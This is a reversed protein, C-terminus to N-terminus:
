NILLLLFKIKSEDPFWYDKSMMTGIYFLVSNEEDKNLDLATNSKNKINKLYFETVYEKFIKSKKYKGLLKTDYTKTFVFWLYRRISRVLTKFVVDKRHANVGASHIWNNGKYSYVGDLEKIDEEELDNKEKCTEKFDPQWKEDSFAHSFENPSNEDSKTISWQETFGKEPEQVSWPSFASSEKNYKLSSSISEKRSSFLISEHLSISKEGISNLQNKIFNTFLITILLM